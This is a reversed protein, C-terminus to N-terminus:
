VDQIKRQNHNLSVGFADLLRVYDPHSEVKSIFEKIREEPRGVKKESLIEFREWLPLLKLKSQCVYECLHCHLCLFIKRALSEPLSAGKQMKQYLFLKGKATVSETTEILYAPCVAVCAGCSACSEWEQPKGSHLRPAFFRLFPKLFPHGNSFLSSTTQAMKLLHKLYHGNSFSKSPNILNLPDSEEKFQRLEKLDKPSFAKHLLPLNWTGIGYPRGGCQGAIHSLSYTLFLHIFHIFRRSDSPFISFVVAEDKNIFTAETSLSLGYNEAFKRTKMMYRSLNKLPLITESGLLSSYFHKVSFPFFRENWLFATLYDEALFGENKAVLGLLVKESSAGEYVVLVADMDPFSAKGELLLNKHGLRNRDFYSIHVPLPESSAMLESIFRLAKSARDFLVLYPTPTTAERVRLKVKSIIGMQGEAGVFYKFERSKREVWTSKSPTVIEMADVLRSIHGYKFSNIGYGGTSLWGGVTSFLSTPCTYIDFSHGKLFNKIEWWRLGAEVTVTKQKEDLDLIRNLRTLDLMLAKKLPILCGMGSTAAGRPIIAWKKKQAYDYVKSIDDITQPQYVSQIRPFRDKIIPPLEISERTYLEGELRSEITM